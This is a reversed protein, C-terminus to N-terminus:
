REGVFDLASRVFHSGLVYDAGAERLAEESYHGSAVGVGIARAAHVV